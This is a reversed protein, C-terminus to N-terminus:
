KGRLDAIALFSIRRAGTRYSDGSALFYGTDVKDVM